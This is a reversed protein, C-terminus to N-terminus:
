RAYAYGLNHSYGGGPVRVKVVGPPRLILWEVDIVIQVGWAFFFMLFQYIGKLYGVSKSSIIIMLKVLLISFCMAYSAGVAFRCLSLFM